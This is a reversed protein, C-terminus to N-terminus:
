KIEYKKKLKGWGDQSLSQDNIGPVPHFSIYSKRLFFCFVVRLRDLNEKLDEYGM